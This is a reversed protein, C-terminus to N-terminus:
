VDCNVKEGNYGYVCGDDENWEAVTQYGNQELYTTLLNQMEGIPQDTQYIYHYSSVEDNIMGGQTENLKELKYKMAFQPMITAATVIQSNMLREQRQEFVQPTLALQLTYVFAISGFFNTYVVTIFLLEIFLIISTVKNNTILSLIGENKRRSDTKKSKRNLTELQYGTLWGFVAPLLLVIYRLISDVYLSYWPDYKTRCMEPVTCDFILSFFFFLGILLLIYYGITLVIKQFTPRLIKKM